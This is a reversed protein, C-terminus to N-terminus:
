PRETLVAHETLLKFRATGRCSQTYLGPPDKLKDVCRQGQARTISKGVVLEQRFSARAPPLKPALGGQLCSRVRNRQLPRGTSLLCM